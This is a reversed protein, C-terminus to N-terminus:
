LGMTFRTALAGAVVGALFMVMWVMPDPLSNEVRHPIRKAKRPPKFHQAVLDLLRERIRLGEAALLPKWPHDARELELALAVAAEVARSTREVLAKQWLENPPPRSLAEDYSALAEVVAPKLEAIIAETLVFAVRSTDQAQLADAKAKENALREGLSRERKAFIVAIQSEFAGDAM